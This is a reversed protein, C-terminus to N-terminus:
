WFRGFLAQRFSQPIGPGNDDVALIVRDGEARLTLRVRPAEASFKVANSVLNLIVREIQGVDFEAKLIIPTEVTFDIGRERALSEFNSAVLRLVQALDAESYEVKMQGADLKSFDLLDNVHRLLLRANRGV